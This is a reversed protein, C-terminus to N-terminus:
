KLGKQGDEESVGSYWVDPHGRGCFRLKVVQRFALDYIIFFHRVVKVNWTFDCLFIRDVEAM